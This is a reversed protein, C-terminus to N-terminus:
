KSPSERASGGGGRGVSKWKAPANELFLSVSFSGLPPTYIHHIVPLIERPHAVRAHQHTIHACKFM